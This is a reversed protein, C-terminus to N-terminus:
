FVDEQDAIYVMGGAGTLATATAVLEDPEPDIVSLAWGAAVAGVGAAGIYGGYDSVIDQVPM